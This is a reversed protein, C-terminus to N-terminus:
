QQNTTNVDNNSYKDCRSSRTEAAVRRGSNQKTKERMNRMRTVLALSSSVKASKSPLRWSHSVGAIRANKRIVKKHIPVINATKWESPIAQQNWIFDILDTFAATLSDGGHKHLDPLINDTGAAKHNKLGHEVEKVEVFTPPTTGVTAFLQEASHRPQVPEVPLRKLLEIFLEAWRDLTEAIATIPNREKSFTTGSLSKSKNNLSRILHYMKLTHGTEDAVRIEEALNEVFTGKDKELARKKEQCLDKTCKGCKTAKIRQEIVEFTANSFWPKRAHRIYGITNAAAKIITQKWSGWFINRDNSDPFQELQNRLESHYSSRQSRYNLMQVHFRKSSDKKNLRVQINNVASKWRCNILIHDIQKKTVKDNSHWTVLQSLREQFTPSSLVLNELSALTCLRQRNDNREGLSFKGLCNESDNPQGLKAHLDGGILVITNEGVKGITQRLTHYFDDEIATCADETFAYACVITTRCPKTALQIACIQPSM